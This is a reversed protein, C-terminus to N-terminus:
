ETPANPQVENTGQQRRWEERREMERRFEERRRDSIKRLEEELEAIRPVDKSGREKEWEERRNWEEEDIDEMDDEEDEEEDMGFEKAVEADFTVLQAYDDEAGCVMTVGKARMAKLTGVAAELGDIMEDLTTAETALFKNRWTLTYAKQNESM